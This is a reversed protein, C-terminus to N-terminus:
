VNEEVPAQLPLGILKNISAEMETSKETILTEFYKIVSENEKEITYTDAVNEMSTYLEEPLADELWNKMFNAITEVITSEDQAWIGNEKTLWEPRMIPLVGIVPTGCRMSELPYTGFSSIRDVWISLCSEGLVTAFEEKPMGRMDRFTLWKFQPNQLYFTKIINMTNRQDRTHIAILPKKPKESPVFCDTIVPSIVDVHISPFLKSIHKKQEETTTICKTVGYNSWGFGPSLSDLIYDYSQSLVIKTCPMKMLQELTSGYLEPIIVFDQPGVKLEGSEINSHPLESYDTGLWSEVGKYQAKEYLVCADYGSDILHKVYRYNTDVSARANGETDQTLFYFKSGKNQLKDLGNELQQLQQLQKDM